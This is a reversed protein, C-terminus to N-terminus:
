GVVVSLIRALAKSEVGVLVIIQPGNPLVTEVQCDSPPYPDVPNSQPAPTEM